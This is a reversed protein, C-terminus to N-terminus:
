QEVKPRTHRLYPEEQREGPADIFSISGFKTSIEKKEATREPMPLRLREREWSDKEPNYHLKVAREGEPVGIAQMNPYCTFIVGTGLSSNVLGEMYKALRKKNLAKLENYSRNGAINDDFIELKELNKQLIDSYRVDVESSPTHSKGIAQCVYKLLPEDAEDINVIYLDHETGKLSGRMETIELKLRNKEEYLRRDRKNLLEEYIGSDNFSVAGILTLLGGGLGSGFFTKMIVDVDAVSRYYASYDLDHSLFYYTAANLGLWFAIAGWGLVFDKHETIWQHRNHKKEVKALDKKAKAIDNESFKHAPKYDFARVLDDLYKKEPENRRFIRM